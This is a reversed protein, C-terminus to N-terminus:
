CKERRARPAATATVRELRTASTVATPGDGALAEPNHDADTLSDLLAAPADATSYKILNLSGAPLEHGATALSLTAAGPALRAEHARIASM